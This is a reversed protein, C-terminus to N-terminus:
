CQETSVFGMDEPKAPLSKFQGYSNGELPAIPSRLGLVLNKKASWLRPSLTLSHRGHASCPWRMETPSPDPSEISLM